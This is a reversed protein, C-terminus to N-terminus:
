REKPSYTTEGCQGCRYTRMRVADPDDPPSDFGVTVNGARNPHGCNLKAPPIEVLEHPTRGTRVIRVM